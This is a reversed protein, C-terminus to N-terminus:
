KLNVIIDFLEMMSDCITIAGAALMEDTDGFGFSVGICKIGVQNAGEVVFLSDGVLCMDM